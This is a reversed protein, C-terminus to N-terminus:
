ECRCGVVDRRGARGAGDGPQGCGSVNWTCSRNPLTTVVLLAATDKVQVPTPSVGPVQGAGVDNLLPWTVTLGTSVTAPGCVTVADDAPM